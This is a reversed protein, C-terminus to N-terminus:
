KGFKLVFRDLLLSLTPLFKNVDNFLVSSDILQNERLERNNSSNELPFRVHQLKKICPAWRFSRRIYAGYLAYNERKAFLALNHFFDFTLTPHPVAIFIFSV